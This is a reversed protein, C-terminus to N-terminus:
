VRYKIDRQVIFQPKDDEKQVVETWNKNKDMSYDYTTINKLKKDSGYYLISSLLKSKTKYEYISGDFIAEKKTKGSSAKLAKANYDYLWTYDIPATLEELILYLTYPKEMQEESISQKAAVGDRFDFYTKKFSLTKNKANEAWLEEHILVNPTVIKTIPDEIDQYRRALVTNTKYNVLYETRAMLKGTTDNRSEIVSGAKEDYAWNIIVDIKGTENSYVIEKIRYGKEDFFIEAIYDSIEGKVVAEGEGKPAHVTYKISEVNNKALNYNKYTKMVPLGKLKAEASIAVFALAMVMIVKIGVIKM